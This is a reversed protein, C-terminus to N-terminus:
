KFNEDFQEVDSHKSVEFVNSVMLIKSHSDKDNFTLCKQTPAFKKSNFSSRSMSCYHRSALKVAELKALM